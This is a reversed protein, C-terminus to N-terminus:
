GIINIEFQCYPDGVAICKTEKVVVEKGLLTKFYGALVGRMYNSALKDVVGKQIECEWLKELKIIIKDDAIEYGIFDAWGTGKTLAEFLLIAEDLDKIGKSKAYVKYSEEGDGYGLHYLLANGGEVGLHERIGMVVGRMGGVAMLIARVSGIDKSCFKKPFIIDNLSSSIDASIIYEKARRYEALLTEPDVDKDTFDVAIFFNGSEKSIGCEEIYVINLGYKEPISCMYRLTGPINPLVIEFGVLKRGEKFLLM